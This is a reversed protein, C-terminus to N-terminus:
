KFTLVGDATVEVEREFDIAFNRPVHGYPYGSYVPCKARRALGDFIPKLEQKTGCGTFNCLVVGACKDFVGLAVLKDVAEAVASVPRKSGGCELFVVRGTPDAAFEGAMFKALIPTHGGMPLGKAAGPRLVRLKVPALPKGELTARLRERADETLKGLTSVTPASYPHGAGRRLMANLLYTINSFGLVRMKRTALKDWDLLPLIDEAGRGGRACMILDVEPDMWLDAFDSARDAASAQAKAYAHKGVKVRYGAAELAKVAQRLGAFVSAPMPVGITRVDAPFLGSLDPCGKKGQAPAAARDPLLRVGPLEKAWEYAAKFTNCTFGTAGLSAAYKLADPNNVGYVRFDFGAARIRDADAKTMGAKRAADCGPCVVDFGGDKAQAIVKDIDRKGKGIGCGLWLTRYKPCKVHFDKLADFQFSSVVINAETLGAAKVADDFQRAYTKGYTKIESQLVCDKPVVALVERLLPIRYPRPLNMKEGLNIRARDAATLKRPEKVFSSMSALAKIDHMCIMEGSETETVDTEVVKAGTDYAAKIAEVTNQPLNAEQWLGRHAVNMMDLAFGDAVAALAVACVLERM